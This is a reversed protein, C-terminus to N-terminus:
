IREIAGKNYQEVKSKYGALICNYNEMNSKEFFDKLLKFVGEDIKFFQLGIGLLFTNLNKRKYNLLELAKYGDVIYVKQHIDIYKEISCDLYTRDLMNSTTNPIVEYNNMILIGNYKLLHLNRIAENKEFAILLDADKHQIIPSNVPKESIKVHSVVSGGIQGLGMMNHIKVHYNKCVCLYGIIHSVFINGQGGLGCIVVNKVM